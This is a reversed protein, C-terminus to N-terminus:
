EFLSIKKRPVNPIDEGGSTINVLNAGFEESLWSLMKKGVELKILKQKKNTQGTHKGIKKGLNMGALFIRSSGLEHALFAARDGDTFGGFNPLHPSEVQVTGVIRESLQPVYKKIREINDGHAHVVMWSGKKWSELQDDMNGDLDTVIIDPNKYKAVATTAGDASILVKNLWGANTLKKLDRELSPGAGFIITQKNKIQKRLKAVNMRKTLQNLIKAAEKDKEKDLDLRKVIEEYKPKWLKWDM